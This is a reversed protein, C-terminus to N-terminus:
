RSPKDRNSSHRELGQKFPPTQVSPIAEKLQEHGSFKAPIREM